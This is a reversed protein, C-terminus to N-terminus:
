GHREYEGCVVTPRPGVDGRAARELTRPRGDRVALQEVRQREFATLERTLGHAHASVFSAVPAHDRGGRQAPLPELELQRELLLLQANRSPAARRVQEDGASQGVLGPRVRRQRRDPRREILGRDRHRERREARSALETPTRREDRRLDERPAGRREPCHEDDAHKHDTSTHSM